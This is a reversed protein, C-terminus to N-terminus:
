TNFGTLVHVYMCVYASVVCSIHFQLDLNGANSKLAAFM